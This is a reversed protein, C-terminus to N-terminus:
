DCLRLLLGVGRLARAGAPGLRCWLLLRRLLTVLLRLLRLLGRRSHRLLLSGTTARPRRRDVAVAARGGEVLEVEAPHHADATRQLVLQDDGVELDRAVVGLEVRRGAATELDAVEARVGAGVDVTLRDGLTARRQEARVVDDADAVRREAQDPVPELLEDVGTLDGERGAM